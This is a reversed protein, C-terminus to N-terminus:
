KEVCTFSAAAGESGPAGTFKPWKPYECLPRSRNANPTADMVVLGSPAKGQEVWQQLATLADNAPTFAVGPEYETQFGLNPGRPVPASPAAVEEACHAMGPVMFLRYYDDV